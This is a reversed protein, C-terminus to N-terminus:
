SRSPYIGYIAICYNVSLLPMVNILPMGAGTPTVVASIADFAAFDTSSSTASYSSDFGSHSPYVNTPDATNGTATNSAKVPTVAIPHTHAPMNMVTIPSTESGSKQGLAINPSPHVPVRGRYDPLGFTTVGNGGYTTGLISFLAQNQAIPLLQGQCLMWGRPAFDFGFMRIEGIFPEM